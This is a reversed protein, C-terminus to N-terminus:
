TLGEGLCKLALSTKFLFEQVGVRAGERSMEGYWDVQKWSRKNGTSHQICYCKGEANKGAFVGQM